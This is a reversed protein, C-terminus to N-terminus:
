KRQKGLLKKDQPASLYNEQTTVKIGSKKELEDRARGAISGGDVASEKNEVFGQADRGRAIQTTSAEGLMSFILELDTMHDRLNQRDLGKYKKYESPTMDFAAKSIEATM